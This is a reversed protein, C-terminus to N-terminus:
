RTTAETIIRGIEDLDGDQLGVFPRAPVNATAVERAFLWGLDERLEPERRLFLALGRRGTPTLRIPQTPGGAQHASAYEVTTGVLVSDGRVEWTISRRLNGTDTLAPRDDFRRSRPPGGRNLDAVIGMVNPVRRAPWAEGNFSQDQFARQSRAALYSGIADLIQDKRGALAEDLGTLRSGEEFDAPVKSTRM